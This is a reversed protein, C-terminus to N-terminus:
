YFDSCSLYYGCGTCVLKCHHGQLTEGCNPCIQQVHMSRPRNARGSVPERASEGPLSGPANGPIKRQIEPAFDPDLASPRVPLM